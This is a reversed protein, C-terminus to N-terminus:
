DGQVDENVDEASEDNVGNETTDEADGNEQVDDESARDQRDDEMVKAIGTVSIDSGKRINMLKVGSTNRGIVSIGDVPIQILIGTNTILMIERSDDASLVGVLKGTKEAINYCIVGQGGRQQVKFESIDTRKGYGKESVFLMKQGQIDLQTGVVKDGEKLTMGRVGYSSRGTTRVDKENFRICKGNETVMFVDRHGDTYKVNILEDDERLSIGAIGTKRINAYERLPTKKIVGKKTTMLLYRDNQFDDIPICATVREGPELNILNIIPTGRAIRSAEPIEYGKLRYVKGKNTFFLITDHTGTMFIDRIFDDEITSAGKIGKGGRKQSRFNDTTMRKVYSMNSLTVVINERKILDEDLIEEDDQGIVTRRPDNYKGKIVLLEEKIVGLLINEDGLISKYYAIKQMLDDYEAQLKERELGTLQRLRMEVIATAQADTFQFTDMLSSKAEEVSKSARIIRIIEDIVDIAKLLGELIHARKKAKELDFKTRRVVVEHRFDVFVQL